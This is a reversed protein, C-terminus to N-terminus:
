ARRTLPFLYTALNVAIRDGIRAYNAYHLDIQAKVDSAALNAKALGSASENTLAELMPRDCEPHSQFAITRLGVKFIANPTGPASALNLSGPPLQKVEQSCSFFSPHQWAIGGVLPETQGAISIATTLFGMAPTEKWDIKGGLTQGILQAGLCIGIIPLRAEHAAKILTAESQMWPTKDIDTVMMPGGLILLGHINDIDSPVGLKPDTGHRDPRRLDLRFGHDRLTAGIRGPGGIDSHQLVIISM